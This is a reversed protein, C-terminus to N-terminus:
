ADENGKYRDDLEPHEDAFTLLALAHFVVAALHNSGTDADIDEGSKWANLHRELAATSLSWDYGRRWNNPAYKQAGIGYHRAIQRMAGAPILDFREMKSGKEGGTKENVIRIEKEDKADEDLNVVHVKAGSMKNLNMWHNQRQEYDESM